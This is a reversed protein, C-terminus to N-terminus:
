PRTAELYRSLDRLNGIFTRSEIIQGTPEDHTKLRGEELWRGQEDLTSVAREARDALAKSTRPRADDPRRVSASPERDRLREYERALSETGDAVQFVYHTPMDGDDDTLRYDSTFYLPRNTRLEYFRALRGDPLRSRRLYDIAAPIPELYKTEGTARALELLIRIAGQSEGGTIAPPEFKRAWAPHMEADYQQAWAPQPAPMRALLLFDGAQMASTRYAPDGYVEVAELMVDVTDALSNDNLTYFGKYDTKPFTRSWSEPYSAPKLPFQGPDPPRDFRQPWAGNPYQARVLSALAYLAAEHIAPDSFKLVRDIRMLFRLASQTTNDDLTTVNRAGASEPEVRYAHRRRGEPDFEILYDWGGSRLQGDVLALAAERAADLYTRDGTAEFAELFALGVSPTGPPQVWAMSATAENEGERLSLDDSYRWLYGGRTGVKSRYFDVARHLALSARDRLDDDARVASPGLLMSAMWSAAIAHRIM